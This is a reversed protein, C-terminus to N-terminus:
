HLTVKIVCHTRNYEVSHPFKFTLGSICIFNNFFHHGVLLASKLFLQGFCFIKILGPSILKM